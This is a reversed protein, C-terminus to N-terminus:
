PLPHFPSPVCSRGADAALAPDLVGGQHVLLGGALEPAAQLAGALGRDALLQLYPLTATTLALTAARPVLAPINAVGYHLVGEELYLPESLKTQRSTESIGGMDIGVDIFVSGPRMTRLMARTILKPALRGPVSVAGIVVDSGALRAALAASTCLDTHLTGTPLAQHERAIQDLLASAQGLVTVDCGLRLFSRAAAQGVKGDGVVLVRGPPVGPLGPLLVGSGALPGDRRQLAWAAIQASVLGAITSMPALMPRSGDPLTVSEYALCTIRRELVAALLVPDRALQQYGAVLGGPQLLGYEAPQLEKVKVVLACAYIEAPGAVIRAGAGAYTEDSFGSGLGAGAEVLVEHGQLRFAGVGEPTAGVRAEGDKIERPVGIRM